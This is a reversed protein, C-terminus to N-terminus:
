AAAPDSSSDATQDPADGLTEGREFKNPYYKTLWARAIESQTLTKLYYNIPVGLNEGGEVCRNVYDDLATMVSNTDIVKNEADQVKAVATLTSEIKANELSIMQQGTRAATAQQAISNNQSATAGQLRALSEMASAPDIKMQDVAMKVENSKLSPIIGMTIISCHSNVNQTSLLNKASDSFTSSVGFGGSVDAFWGGVEFTAQMSEAVSVMEQSSQTDTTNLIHVMAVFSSGYSAGSILSFSDQKGDGGSSAKDLIKEVEQPSDTNIRKDPFLENWAQTAKDVDIIMPAFVQANKHTCTVSVVLTGAISHRSHQSNMQSQASTRAESAFKDGFFKVSGSVFGAVTSAHSSSTQANQDFAFYQCNMQLSDAAIPLQKLISRNYDIPSETESSVQSLKGRLPQIAKEAAIKAKAYDVAAQQLESNIDEGEKIIDDPQIGMDIMEQVTMDISRKLAEMSNLHREAADAPQQLKGIQEVVDLQEKHVINGLILSPDYPITSPM